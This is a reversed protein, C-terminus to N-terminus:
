TVSGDGDSRVRGEKRMERGTETTRSKKGGDDQGRANGNRVPGHGKARRARSACKKATSKPIGGGDKRDGTRMKVPSSETDRGSRSSRTRMRGERIETSTGNTADQTGNM